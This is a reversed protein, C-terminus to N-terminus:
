LNLKTQKSEKIVGRSILENRKIDHYAQCKPKQMGLKELHIDNCLISKCIQRYSPVKNLEELRRPAEDPLDNLYVTTTWRKIYNEIRSRM